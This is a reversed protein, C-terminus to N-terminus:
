AARYEQGSLMMAWIRRANKNALAVASKNFGRQDRVRRIWRSAPDVKEGVHQVVARAGHILLKRLYSDGRKSIGLLRSRGGTSHQRPVLGIWASFQRGNRYDRAQAVTAEIATATIPGVGPIKILRRGLESSQFQVRIKEDAWAVREDLNLLEEWLVRLIERGQVTLGDPQVGELLCPLRKRLHGIGQPEVIGYEMLFSRIENVLATRESMLRERVRHVMLRDQQEVTKPRVFRMTPRMVAESIAEADAQDNKNTKVYAKVYQGPMLRVEHGLGALERAWYNSGSCTEMGVMCKPLQRFFGLVQGRRLQRRLVVEGQFGRGCVEFVNKALDLGVVTIREM